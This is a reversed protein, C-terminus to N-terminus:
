SNSIPIRKVQSEAEPRKAATVTLVGNKFVASVKEPDVDPGLQLSRQFQGHWRESYQASTHESKKEGRLTLVGDVLSVDVDKQDMGPLEALIKLEKEDEVIEIHPWEGAAGFRAPLGMDLGRAFDNFMRNMERHLALLTDGEDSPRSTAVSRNRAWPILDPFAM